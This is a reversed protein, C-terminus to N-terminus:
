MRLVIQSTGDMTCTGDNGAREVVVSILRRPAFVHFGSCSQQDAEPTGPLINQGEPSGDLIDGSYLQDIVTRAFPLAQEVGFLDTSIRCETGGEEGLVLVNATNAPAAYWNLVDGDAWTETSHEFGATVFLGHIADHQHYNQFCLTIALQVNQAAAEVPTLATATQSSAILGLSILAARLM